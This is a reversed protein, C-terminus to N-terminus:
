KVIENLFISGDPNYLILHHKKDQGLPTLIGIRGGNTVWKFSQRM